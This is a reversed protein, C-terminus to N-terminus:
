QRRVRFDGKVSGQTWTGALLRNPLGISQIKGDIVLPVNNGSADKAIGEMHVSWDAPNVTVRLSINDTGPNVVANVTKGDWDMVLLVPNRQSPSSAWDGMWSGELPHGEQAHVATALVACLLLVVVVLYRARM